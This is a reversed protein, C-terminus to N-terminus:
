RSGNQVRLRIKVRDGVSFIRDGYKQPIVKIRPENFSLCFAIGACEVDADGRIIELESVEPYSFGEPKILGFFGGDHHLPIYGDLFGGNVAFGSVQGCTDYNSNLLSYKNNIEEVRCDLELTRSSSLEGWKICPTLCLDNSARLYDDPRRVEVHMVPDNWFIFYGNKIFTGLDDGRSISEGLSVRPKVHLIKIVHSGQSIAIVYEKSNRNKFPTPTDFSQIDIIKGDVPSVADSGFSGYYIDVASKTMHAAYPSKLFSFRSSDPAFIEVDNHTAIKKM